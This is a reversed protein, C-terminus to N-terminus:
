TAPGTSKRPSLAAVGNPPVSCPAGVSATSHTVPRNVTAVASRRAATLTATVTSVMRVGPMVNARVGSNAKAENTVLVASTSAVGTNRAPSV